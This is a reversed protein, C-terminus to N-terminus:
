TVQRETTRGRTADSARLRGAAFASVAAVWVMFAGITIREFLGAYQTSLNIAALPGSILLAATAVFSAPSLKRWRPDRRFASGYLVTGVITILSSIGAICMQPDDLTCAVVAKRLSRRFHKLCQSVEDRRGATRRKIIRWEILASGSEIM